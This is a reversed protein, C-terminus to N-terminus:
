TERSLQVMEQSAHSWQVGEGGSGVGGVRAGEGARGAGLSDLPDVEERRELDGGFLHVCEPSRETERERVGEGRHGPRQHLRVPRGDPVVGPPGLREVITRHALNVHTNRSRGIQVVRGGSATDLFNDSAVVKVGPESHGIDELPVLSM